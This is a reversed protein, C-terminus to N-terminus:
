IHILSLDKAAPTPPPCAEANCCCCCEGCQSAAAENDHRDNGQRGNGQHGSPRPPDPAAHGPPSSDGGCGGNGGGSAGDGHCGNSPRLYMEDDVDSVLSKPSIPQPDAADDTTSTSSKSRWCRRYGTVVLM